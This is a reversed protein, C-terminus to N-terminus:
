TTSHIKLIEEKIKERLDPHQELFKKSEFIGQGLKRNEFQLWAGMKKIIGSQIALNILEATESIGEGFYISFEAKKFPPAIKNKVVKALIKNGVIEEGRKIQATRELEIRISSYFKLALGGPTTEPKGFAGIKMRTQNLFIVVSKTKSIAGTLKRLAQSMLRAQLGIEFEGPEGSIEARPALAAVSDLIILDVEGSRVLTEIIELAEEASEPQSILLDEVKVGIKKAWEPDFAHEADVMACVGGMEQVKAAIKLALTTKGSAEGGFIEVIRGRPIGGVGLALDLALIGTPITEVKTPKEEKLQMIAGEGFKKKIQEIAVKLGEKEKEKKAM